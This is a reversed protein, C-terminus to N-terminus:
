LLLGKSQAFDIPDRANKQLNCPSCTLQLNSRANSGGRARPIIHDIHPEAGVVERCYACRGRQAQTLFKLTSTRREIKRARKDARVKDRNRSRWCRQYDPNAARWAACYAVSRERNRDKTAQYRARAWANKRERATAASAAKKAALIPAREAKLRELRRHSAARKKEPNALAWARVSARHKERNAARWLRVTERNKEPSKQGM